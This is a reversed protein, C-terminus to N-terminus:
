ASESQALVGESVKVMCAELKSLKDRSSQSNPPSELIMTDTHLSTIM